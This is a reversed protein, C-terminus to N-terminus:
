EGNVFKAGLNEALTLVLLREGTQISLDSHLSIASVGTLREIMEELVGRSNEILRTRAQKLLYRGNPDASLRQEAPTLMGELRILILDELIWVRVRSPGQGMQEREFTTIMAAIQAEVQGKTQRESM